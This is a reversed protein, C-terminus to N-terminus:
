ATNNIIAHFAASHVPTGWIHMWCTAGDILIKSFTYANIRNNDDTRFNSNLIDDLYKDASIKVLSSVSRKHVRRLDLIFEYEAPSLRIHIRTWKREKQRPQYRTRIWARCHEANHISNKILLTVILSTVPIGIARSISNLRNCLSDQLYITTYIMM